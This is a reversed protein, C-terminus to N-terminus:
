GTTYDAFRPAEMEETFRGLSFPWLFPIGRDDLYWSRCGTAWVTNKAAAVREDEFRAAAESSPVAYSRSEADLHEILRMLYGFQMEATRILSFNGVPSNPGNLMFFNPFGPLTVSMYASPREKWVEDLSVGDQGHISMPRVFADVHFGTALVLVDLEHLKGDRTRVGRGEIREIPETVLEAQPAQISDYFDHSVVLRKCAPTYDPRLQERLVPDVIHEDLHTTCLQRVGEFFEDNGDLVQNAFGTHFATDLADHVARLAAPDRRFEAKQEGTYEVQPVPVVWQATRQFLSYHGARPALAGTIQVGSSGNGIVGIRRGDLAVDHDWQASHFSDGEFEEIGDIDPLKAHHLIGTAAIVWAFREVHGAGTEIEWCDGQWDCRVVPDGFRIADEIGYRHATGEFYQQIESGPSSTYNWEPNLAFSYSYLHSPVDCAIGPYTNERWTGGVRDAKEFVTFDAGRERLEIAALIGSMGAGIIAFQKQSSSM